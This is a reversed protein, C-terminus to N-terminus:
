CLANLEASKTKLATLVNL